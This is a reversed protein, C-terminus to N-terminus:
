LKSTNEANGQKSVSVDMDRIDVSATTIAFTTMELAEQYSPPPSETDDESWVDVGVNSHVADINQVAIFYDPPGTSSADGFPQHRPLHNYAPLEPAPSKQLDEAPISSIVVQPTSLLNNHRRERYSCALSALLLVGLLFLLITAAWYLYVLFSDPSFTCNPCFLVFGFYMTTSSGAICFFALGAVASLYLRESHRMSSRSAEQPTTEAM